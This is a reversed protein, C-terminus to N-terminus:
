KAASQVTVAAGDTLNIQGSTIVVDGENLGERVEVQDGVIRGAIVKRKKAIKGEMIYIENSNVGGIFATRAIFITKDTEPATFHATGYMGAKLQQGSVNGVEMEVPYNLSNDGKAAIFTITGEYSTEPFVNSTVKVKQGKQLGVVQAEPVSVALKLRSVDVIDFMKSGPSLYAGQEIYKKNITGSIPAKVYTDSVHRSAAEYRTKALDYQLRADDMQKRTVGGTQFAAEYREKDIRLQDLNAKASQLDTNVIQGDIYAIPQGQKVVNGEDVLLKTIRGSTEALYSLERIPAFNGNALFGQAFDNRSVKQILVPIDGINSQKVFETKAENAQKNANLKWMILVVAGVTVVGWIIFKKM